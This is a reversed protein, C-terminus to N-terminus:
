RGSADRRCLELTLLDDVRLYGDQLALQALEEATQEFPMINLLRVIDRPDRGATHATDDIITNGRELGGGAIFPLSPLWGDAKHGVFEQM